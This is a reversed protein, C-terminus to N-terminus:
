HLQFGMFFHRNCPFIYLFICDLPSAVHLLLFLKQSICLLMPVKISSCQYLVMVIFDASICSPGNVGHIHGPFGHCRTCVSKAFLSCVFITFAWKLQGSIRGINNVMAAAVIAAKQSTNAQKPKGTLTTGSLPACNMLACNPSNRCRFPALGIRTAGYWGALLAGASCITCDNLRLTSADALVPAGRLCRRACHNM